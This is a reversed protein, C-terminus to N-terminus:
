KTKIIIKKNRQVWEMAKREGSLRSSHQSLQLLHDESRWCRCGRSSALFATEPGEWVQQALNGPSKGQSGAPGPLCLLGPPEQAWDRDSFSAAPTTVCPTRPGASYGCGQRRGWEAAMPLGAHIHVLAPACHSAEVREWDQMLTVRGSGRPIGRGM